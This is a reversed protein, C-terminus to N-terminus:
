LITSMVTVRHGFLEDDGIMEWGLKAYWTPITQDFSLLYLIHHGLAKAQTKVADILLEGIKNGRYQSHVVLSGLWPTLGPKIGDNVRLCAMGIPKENLIGVFAMPLTHNNSHEILQQEAKKISANPNWHKSIEEFWLHALQPIHERCETLLKIELSEKM